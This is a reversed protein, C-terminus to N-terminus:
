KKNKSLFSRLEEKAVKRAFEVLSDGVDILHMPYNNKELPKKQLDVQSPRNFPRKEEM